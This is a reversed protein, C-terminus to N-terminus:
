ARNCPSIIFPSSSLIELTESHIVMSQRNCHVQWHYEGHVFWQERELRNVVFVAVFWKLGGDALIGVTRAPGTVFHGLSRPVDCSLMWERVEGYDM